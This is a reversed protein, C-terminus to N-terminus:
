ARGRYDAAHRQTEQVRRRSDLRGEIIKCSTNTPTVMVLTGKALSWDAAIAKVVETKGSGAIGAIFVNRRGNLAEDVAKQQDSKLPQVSYM